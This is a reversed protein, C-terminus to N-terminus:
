VVPTFRPVTVEDTVPDFVAQVPLDVRVEEPTTGVVDTLMFPGEDLAILAVVYPVRDRWAENYAHRFVTFSYIRGRGSIPEWGCATSLCFPCVTSIPYRLRGCDRCRQLVLRSERCAEWFPQNVEDITPLILPSM